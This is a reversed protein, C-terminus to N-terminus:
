HAVSKLNHHDRKVDRLDPQEAVRHLEDKDVLGVDVVGTGVWTVAKHGQVVLLKLSPQHHLRSQDCSNDQRITEEEEQSREEGLVVFDCHPRDRAEM